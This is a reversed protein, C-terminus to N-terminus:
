LLSFFWIIIQLVLDGLLLSVALALTMFVLLPLQPTVWVEAPLEELSSIPEEALKLRFNWRRGGNSNEEALSLGPNRLLKSRSVKYAILFAAAKRRLPEGEFGDFIRRRRAWYCLNRLAVYFVTLSALLFTNFAVTFPLFIIWVGLLPELFSPLMPLAVGLCILAKSDAGGFLGTYYLALALISLVALGVLWLMLEPEGFLLTRLATLFGGASALVAWVWDPVERTKWDRLSAYALLALTLGLSAAELQQPQFM